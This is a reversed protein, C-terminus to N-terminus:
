QNQKEKEKKDSCSQLHQEFDKKGVKKFCLPCYQDHLKHEEIYIQVTMILTNKSEEGKGELCENTHDVIDSDALLDPFLWNCVICRREEKKEENKKENKKKKANKKEDQKKKEIESEKQSEIEMKNKGFSEDSSKISEKERELKEKYNKEQKISEKQTSQMSLFPLNNKMAATRRCKCHDRDIISEDIEYDLDIGFIEPHKYFQFIQDFPLEDDGQQQYIKLRENKNVDEKNHANERKSDM